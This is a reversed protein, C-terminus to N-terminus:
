AREEERKEQKEHQKEEQGFPPTISLTPPVYQRLALISLAREDNRLLMTLGYAILEIYESEIALRPLMNHVFDSVLEVKAPLDQARELEKQIKEWEAALIHRVTTTFFINATSAACEEDLCAGAGAPTQAVVSLMISVDQLIKEVYEGKARETPRPLISSVYDKFSKLLVDEQSVPM